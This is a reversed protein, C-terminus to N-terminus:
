NRSPYVGVLAIIFNLTLYPQRNEHAGGGGANETAGSVSLGGVSSTAADVPAFAGTHGAIVRGPEPVALTGAATGAALTATVGAGLAHDHAPLDGETLVVNEEGARTGLAYSSLGPASGAGLAIRGRLDPLGFTTRGDGGYTTGLLSFLATHQAIPLLQGNCFTWGRPAFNMPWLEVSGLLPDTSAM